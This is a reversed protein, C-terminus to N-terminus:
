CHGLPARLVVRDSLQKQESDEEPLWAAALKVRRGPTDGRSSTHGSGIGGEGRKRFLKCNFGRTPEPEEGLDVLYSRQTRGPGRSPTKFKPISFILNCPAGIVM